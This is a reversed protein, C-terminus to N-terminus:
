FLCGVSCNFVFFLVALVPSLSISDVNMPKVFKICVM